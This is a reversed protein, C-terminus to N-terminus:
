LYYFSSDNYFGKIDFVVGNEQLHVKPDISNFENHSVALVIVDYKKEISPIKTTGYELQFVKEDAQPDYVEVNFGFENLENYLDM